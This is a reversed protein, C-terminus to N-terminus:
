IRNGTLFIELEDLRAQFNKVFVFIDDILGFPSDFAVGGPRFYCAHMRAGSIREYFGMLKEREEFAWLFPSLAGVDLAHTTLGM